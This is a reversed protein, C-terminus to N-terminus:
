YIVGLVDDEKLVLLEDGDIMVASGAYSSFVVKDGVKVQLNMLEGNDNRKGDGVAVVEAQTPTEQANDPIIIGGSSMTESELRRVLLRDQLPKFNM